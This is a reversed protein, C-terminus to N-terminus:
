GLTQQGSVNPRFFEFSVQLKGNNVKTRLADMGRPPPGGLHKGDAAFQGGHCPCVFKNQGAQWAVSCGMHPCIASLVQLEGNALRNVYVPQTSVVERWGDRQSFSVAKTVPEKANTFETVDGVDSWEQTAAKAYVPYFISRLIPIALIAGMLGSTGVALSTCFLNRRTMRAQDRFSCEACNTNVIHIKDKQSM